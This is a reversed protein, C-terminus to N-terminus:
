KEEEIMKIVKNTEKKLEESFENLGTEMAETFKDREVLIRFTPLGPCYSQFWWADAGTVAMSGHVQAKYADPLKGELLYFAHSEPLPAKGEFGVNEGKILGDPSAGCWGSYHLCFGVKELKKGTQNEFVAEAEEEMRIGNWIAWLPRSKPPPGDPDVEFEEPCACTSMKGIIEAIAKKRASEVKATYKKPLIIGLEECEDILMQKTMKKPPFEGVLDRIQERIEESTYFVSPREALWLGFRSATLRHNRAKHWEPNRQGKGIIKCDPFRM